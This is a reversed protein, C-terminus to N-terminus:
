PTYGSDVYQCGNDAFSIALHDRCWDSYSRWGLTLSKTHQIKCLGLATSHCKGMILTNAAKIPLLTQLLAAVGWTDIFGGCTKNRYILYKTLTKSAAIWLWHIAVWYAYFLFHGPWPAMRVIHTLGADVSPSWNSTICIAYHLFRM